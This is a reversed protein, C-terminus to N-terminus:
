ISAASVLLAASSSSQEATCHRWQTDETVFAEQIASKDLKDLLLLSSAFTLHEDPLARILVMAALENDLQELDFFPPRLDQICHMTTEVRNILSQLTEQDTKWISFLDDYANFHAGPKCQLHVHELASWMAVPDDRIGHFHVRQENEVMVYLWGAAKDAKADWADTLSANPKSDIPHLSSGNVIHWLGAAHLWAEMKGAWTPYNTVDLRAFNPSVSAM